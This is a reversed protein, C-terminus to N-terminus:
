VEYISAYWHQLQNCLTGVEREWPQDSDFQLRPGPLELFGSGSLNQVDIRRDQHGAHRTPDAARLRLRARRTAAAAVCLVQAARAASQALVARLAADHEGARFNGELLLLRGALLWRPALLFLLAFSADSLSRSWAADGSGLVDLLTEKIEDKSCCSARLRQQLEGALRTKGTGPAGTILLLHPRELL